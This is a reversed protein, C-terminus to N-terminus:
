RKAEIRNELARICDPCTAFILYKSFLGDEVTLINAFPVTLASSDHRTYTVIGHCVV